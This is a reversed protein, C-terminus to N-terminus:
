ILLRTLYQDVVCVSADRALQDVSVIQHTAQEQLGRFKTTYIVTKNHRVAHPMEEDPLGRHESYRRLYRLVKVARSEGLVDLASSIMLLDVHHALARSISVIIRDSFKLCGGMSGVDYDDQELLEPSMGLAKCIEWLSERTTLQDGLLLNYMLTGDFLIPVVPVYVVHWEGPILVRGTQPLVGRSMLQFLTNIGVNVVGAPLCTFSGQPISLNVMPVAKAMGIQTYPYTYSVDELTIQGQDMMESTTNETMKIKEQRRTAANLVSAIKHVAASGSFFGTLIKALTCLDKGFGEVAKILVLFSGVQLEKKQVAHGGLLVVGAGVFVFVYQVMWMTNSSMAHAAYNKKNFEKHCEKFSETFAWGKKYTLILPNCRNCMIVFANWNDGAVFASHHSDLEGNMRLRLAVLMCVLMFPISLLLVVSHVLPLSSAPPSLSESAAAVVVQICLIAKVCLGV